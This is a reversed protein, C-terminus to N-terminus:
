MDTDCKLVSNAHINANNCQRSHNVHGDQEAPFVFITKKIRTSISPLKFHLGQVDCIRIELSFSKPFPMYYKCSYLVTVTETPIFSDNIVTKLKVLV